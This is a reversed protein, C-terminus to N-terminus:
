PLCSYVNINDSCLTAADLKLDGPLGDGTNVKGCREWAQDRFAQSKPKFCVYTSDGQTGKNFVYLANYDNATIRTVYSTKLESTGNSLNSLVLNTTANGWTIKSTANFIPQNAADDPNSMWPYYGKQTYYRDTGSILQESDSRSATDKSRNIQEIPNIASLVAVALFGLVAIVILLEIMTFGQM